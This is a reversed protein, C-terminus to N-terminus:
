QVVSSDCDRGALTRGDEGEKESRGDHLGCGADPMFICDKENDKHNTKRKEAFIANKESVAFFQTLFVRYSPIRAVLGELV